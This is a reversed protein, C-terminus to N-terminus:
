MSMDFGRDMDKQKNMQIINDVTKDIKQYTEPHKESFSKLKDQGVEKAAQWLRLLDQNPSNQQDGYHHEAKLLLRQCRAQLWDASYTKVQTQLLANEAGLASECDTIPKILDPKHKVLHTLKEPCVQKATQIFGVLNEQHKETDNNADATKMVLLECRVLFRKNSMDFIQQAEESLKISPKQNDLKYFKANSHFFDKVQHIARQFLNPDPEGLVKYNLSAQKSGQRSIQHELQTIDRTDERNVFLQVSESHRTLAVYSNNHNTIKDHLVYTNDITAGQSKYVTGAYGHRLGTYEKPNFSVQQGDDLKVTFKDDQLKEITGFWGNILGLDKDTQAFQVRDNTSFQKVGRDTLISHEEDDLKGVSRLVDRVGANLADVDANTQALIFQTKAPDYDQRWVEILNAMSAAKSDQWDICKHQQLLELAPKIEGNSLLESTQRQWSESQRRVTDISQSSFKEALLEFMGGREISPLQREDGVLLLKCKHRSAVDFLEVMLETSLMAAEDVVLATPKNLILRENKIDFLFKHCTRSNDVGAEALDQAVKHTPAMGLVQYGAQRYSDCIPELTYSKGTGARGQIVKFSGEETAYEYAAKQEDSLEKNPQHEDTTLGARRNLRNALRWLHQEQERVERTTFLGTNQGLAVLKPSELVEEIVQDKIGSPVHKYCFREVDSKDFVAQQKTIANIIEHPDQALEHNTQKILKSVEVADSLHKRMRVPGLHDQPMIGIADVKIDLGKEAFFKNQLDRWHNGWVEAETVLGKRVQPDLDRAKTREFAQGDKTFRRTTVLVHAHWNTEGDHPRHINVQAAVGKDVFHENVFRRTLEIKHDLTVEADDPLAIVLEKCVQSDKRREMSEAQNWLYTSDKFKKDAGKPLLVDHYVSDTKHKFSFVEGTRECTIRERANYAAKRCANGGTTRSVYQCRAFQIAM